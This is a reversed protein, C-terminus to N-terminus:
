PRFAPASPLYGGRRQADAASASCGGRGQRADGGCRPLHGAPCLPYRGAFEFVPARSGGDGTTQILSPDSSATSSPRCLTM